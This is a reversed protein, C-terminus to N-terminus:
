YDPISNYVTEYHFYFAGHFFISLISIPMVSLAEYWEEGFLNKLPISCWKKQSDLVQITSAKSIWDNNVLFPIIDVDDKVIGIFGHNEEEIRIITEM